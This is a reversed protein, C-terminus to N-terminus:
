SAIRKEGPRYPHETAILRQMQIVWADAEAEDRFDPILRRAGSPLVMEVDVRGDDQPIVTFITRKM